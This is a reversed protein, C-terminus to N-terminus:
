IMDVDVVNNLTSERLIVVDPTLPLYSDIIVTGKSVLRRVWFINYSLQERKGSKENRESNGRKQLTPVDRSIYYGQEKYM